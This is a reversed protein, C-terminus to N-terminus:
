LGRREGPTDPCGYSLLPNQTFTHKRFNELGTKPLLEIFFPQPIDTRAMYRKFVGMYSRAVNPWTMRRTYKYANKGMEQRLAPNSLLQLIAGAFSKPNNLEVLIGRSPTVVEKAHLFPTSIVARGCGMAYALTGSVIQGPNVSSSIYIDSAKLYKIIGELTAYKNYFKVNDELGLRRVKKELFNRYKEGVKKRVIPHTEGIILYLINPFKEVVEPLADIVHEYGKRPNMMGFSSIILRDNYQTKTKGDMSPVFPVAHVGHPIVSINGILGYDDRLIEVAKDAMVVLCSSREAISQVIGKRKESPNPLVTHLTTVVPKTLTELFPILREGYRGGFIGFEHQISVVGIEDTENIKKAVDVYERIRTDNVQFIVNEPYNYINVGDNLALIKSDIETFNKDVNVALDRTFTAIGCERPPYTGVYLIWSPKKITKM